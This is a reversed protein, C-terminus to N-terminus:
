IILDFVKLVLTIGSLVDTSAAGDTLHVACVM